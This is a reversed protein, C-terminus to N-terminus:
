MYTSLQVAGVEQNSKTPEVQDVM